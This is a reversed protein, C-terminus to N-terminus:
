NQNWGEVLPLAQLEKGEQQGIHLRTQYVSYTNMYQLLLDSNSYITDMHCQRHTSILAYACQRFRIFRFGLGAAM